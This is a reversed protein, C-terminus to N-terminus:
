TLDHKRVLGRMQDYTLSLAEAAQKQNGGHAALAESVLTKEVENLHARLDYRAGSVPPSLAPAEPKPSASAGFPGFAAEFPDLVVEDILGKGDLEAWHFVAREAANKLERVNGPWSHNKLAM